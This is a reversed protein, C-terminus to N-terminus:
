NPSSKTLKKLFCNIRIAHLVKEPIIEFDLGRQKVHKMECSVCLMAKARERLSWLWLAATGYNRFCQCVKDQSLSNRFPFIYVEHYVRSLFENWFLYCKKKQKGATLAQLLPLSLFRITYICYGLGSNM